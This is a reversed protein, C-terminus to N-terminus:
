KDRRFMDNEKNMVKNMFYICWILAIFYFLAVLGVCIVALALWSM